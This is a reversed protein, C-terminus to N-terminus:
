EGTGEDQVREGSYAECEGHELVTFGRSSSSQNTRYSPDVISNRPACFLEIFAERLNEFTYADVAIGRQTM